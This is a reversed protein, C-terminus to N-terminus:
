LRYATMANSYLIKDQEATSFSQLADLVLSVWQEYTSALTLVPSDSGFMVRDSGFVALTHQIYPQLEAPTWHQMDAETVLGSLKCVVNPYKALEALESRWADQHGDKIAPKGIHDLIFQVDPCQRVLAIADPLQFYKICLDFSLGYEALLQVGVVFEPQLSFGLPERQLLRRVGKVLPRKKLDDLVPRVQTGKELPAFAVIGRIRPDDNALTTVWDVEAIGQQPLCDSQVFVLADVTWNSGHAPIHDPLYPRNLLPEDALWPYQLRNTDWFHVHSDAIKLTSM